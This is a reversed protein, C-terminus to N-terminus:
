RPRRRVRRNAIQWDTLIEALEWLKLIEVGLKLLHRRPWNLIKCFTQARALVLLVPHDVSSNTEWGLEFVNRGDQHEPKHGCLSKHLLLRKDVGPLWQYNKGNNRFRLGALLNPPLIQRFEQAKWQIWNWTETPYIQQKMKMWAHPKSTDMKPQERRYIHKVSITLDIEKITVSIKTILSVLAVGLQLPFREMYNLQYVLHNKTM